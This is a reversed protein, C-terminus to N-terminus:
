CYRWNKLQNNGLDMIEMANCQRLSEPLTTISNDNLRLEKLLVNYTLDPLVTLQNHAASLKTLELHSV